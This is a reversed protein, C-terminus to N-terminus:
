ARVLRQAPKTPRVGYQTDTLRTQPTYATTRRRCRPITRPMQMEVGLRGGRAAILRDSGDAATLSLQTKGLSAGAQWHMSRTAFPHRPSYRATDSQNLRQTSALKDRATAM